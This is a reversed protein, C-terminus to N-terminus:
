TQYRGMGIRNNAEDCTYVTEQWVLKEIIKANNGGEKTKTYSFLLKNKEDIYYESVTLSRDIFCDCKILFYLSLQKGSMLFVLSYNTM